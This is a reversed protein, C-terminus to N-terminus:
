RIAVLEGTQTAVYLYGGAGVPSIMADTGIKMTRQVAGTKPDLSAAEGKSSVVVLRNSALVPGSWVAREKAKKVGKNLDTIWYVQGNERSACIVLGSIDTVYVVDGAPWASSISTIPLNWREAGTRLDVADFMGSHSVAYVDGKYIAPRGPIDRIESLANNRNSRSLVATWLGNGNSTSLAMLEGSAFAAVVADGSVAPSGAMLIRASENIAQYTWGAQGTAADFTLLNDGTTEAYVRGDAVTPAGHIPEEVMTRWLVEGTSPNVAAVFRYGSSVFLKGDAYALGGGFAEKDRKTRVALDRRWIERGSRADFATVMAAGDMAYVRGEAVVPTATVHLGPGSGRGFASRWAVTFDHGADLHEMAQAQNGGPLPWDANPQPPPLYFDQGKLADSIKLNQDLAIIPVREGTGAYKPHKKSALPNHVHACGATFAVALLVAMLGLTRRKMM